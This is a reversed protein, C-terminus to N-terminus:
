NLIQDRSAILFCARRKGGQKSTYIISLKVAIQSIFGFGRCVLWLGGVIAGFRFSVANKATSQLFVLYLIELIEPITKMEFQQLTMMRFTFLMNVISQVSLCKRLVFLNVQLPISVVHLSCCTEVENRLYIQFPLVKFDLNWVNRGFWVSWWLVRWRVVFLVSREGCFCIMHYTM